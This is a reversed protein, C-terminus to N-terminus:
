AVTAGAPVIEGHALDRRAAGQLAAYREPHCTLIVFQLRASEEKILDLIRALREGDTNVLPDDLLLVQRENQSVVEALALRTAFYIQEQEGASMEEIPAEPAAGDPQVSRPAMSDSLEIRALRKGAIRELIETARREVPEALGALAKAKSEQIADWLRKIASVRLLEAARENELQRVREEAAAVDSYPGQALIARMAAESQQYSERTQQLESQLSDIQQGLAAAREPADAPLGALAADIGRLDEEVKECARRKEDLEARRGALTRGDAQLRALTEQAGALEADNATRDATAKAAALQLATAAEKAEAWAATAEAQVREREQKQRAVASRLAELDPKSNAWAPEAILTRECDGALGREREQLTELTEPGLAAALEAGATVLERSLRDRREVREALDSWRAVGFPAVLDRLRAESEEQRRRWAAADTVPGSLELTAIGPIRLRLRGDGRAVFSEARTLRVPGAPEGLLVEAELDAEAQIELRLALAEVQVRAKDAAQAAAQIAAWAAADPANLGAIAAELESKRQAAAGARELRQRLGALEELNRLYAVATEVRRELDALGADPAMAQEWEARALKEKEVQADRKKLAASEIDALGSRAEECRAIKASTEVIAEIEGCLQRYQAKAAELSSLAVTRKTRLEAVRRAIASVETHQARLKELAVAGDRYRERGARASQELGAVRELLAQSATLDNNADELLAEIEALRGKRIRAKEDERTWANLLEKRVAQEFAAGHEGSLQAGLMQRIDALADGSLAPLTRVDQSGCLVALLGLREGAKDKARAPQSRLMARVQEDAGKGKAIVEFKGNAGKRELVAKPSDVFTKSIRYVEGGDSFTLAVSPALATGRPRMEDAAAGSTSHNEVLVTEISERLTSKGAGNPGVLLNTEAQEFEVELPGRLGKFNEIHVSHLIVPADGAM